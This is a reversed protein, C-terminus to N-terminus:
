YNDPHYWVDKLHRKHVYMAKDAPEFVELLSQHKEPIYDAIGIAIAYQGRRIREESRSTVADALEQRTEYDEGMVIVVFEDGGTRFVPSHKFTKCVSMCAERIVEDGAKHGMTDNIRKLDNVDCVVVAFPACVGADIESNIREEWQVYAHKNKVGTLADTSSAQKIRTLEQQYKEERDRATRFNNFMILVSLIFLGYSIYTRRFHADEIRDSQTELFAEAEEEPYTGEEFHQQYFADIDAMSRETVNSTSRNMWMMTTLLMLSLLMIWVIVSKGYKREQDKQLVSRFLLLGLMSWVAFLLYSESAMAEYSMLKPALLLIIFGVMILVGTLGTTQEIRDRNAKADRYVAFSLFVYIITAGITTVDVIWGIATRGLFPILVSVAMVALYANAPIHSDILKGFWATAEHERGLAYLLRSLATLNTIISTLVVSLLAAMMINVGANGLYHNAAYFAPLAKIGELNNMDQIYSFWNSYEPPYATVSLLAMLIYFLTSILVSSILVGRVKKVPFSFESSFHAINEFGIFAWPSIVAIRIIQRLASKDPLYVPEYSFGSSGHRMLAVASCVVVVGVFIITMLIVLLQPVKRSRTCLLGILAMVGISLLLEGLYVDYGFVTYCYGFQFATGLFRRAFLPLSTINAWFVALYALLLFWFILFGVDYGCVKRGYTYLGGADQHRNIMYILNRNIVLIVAMGVLLGFVTGLIGAQSLYTSCTVVFSGWGIATSISFACAGLPTFYPLLTQRSNSESSTNRSM